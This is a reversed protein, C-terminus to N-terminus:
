EDPARAGEGDGDGRAPERAGAARGMERASGIMVNVGAAFGLLTFVVLLWPRTGFALDLGYGLGVGMGIGIVLELIMRWAMQAQSFSQMAENASEPELAARARAIREELAQLRSADPEKSM